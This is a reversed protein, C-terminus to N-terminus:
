KIRSVEGSATIAGNRRCRSDVYDTVGASIVAVEFPTLSQEKSTVTLQDANKLRARSRSCHAGPEYWQLLRHILYNTLTVGDGM